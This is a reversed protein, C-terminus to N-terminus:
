TRNQISAALNTPSLNDKYARQIKLSKNSDNEM